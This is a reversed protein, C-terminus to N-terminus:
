LHMKNSSIEEGGKMNTKNANLNLLESCRMLATKSKFTKQPNSFQKLHM